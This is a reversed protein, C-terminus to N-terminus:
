GVNCECLRPFRYDPDMPDPFFEYWISPLLEWLCCGFWEGNLRYPAFYDHLTRELLDSDIGGAGITTHVLHDILAHNGVQLGVLRQDPSKAVGIKFCGASRVEMVYLCKPYTLIRMGSHTVFYGKVVDRRAVNPTEGGSLCGAATGASGSGAESM